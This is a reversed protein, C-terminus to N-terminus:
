EVKVSEELYKDVKRQIEEMSLLEVEVSLEHISVFDIFCRVPVNTCQQAAHGYVSLQTIYSDMNRRDEDTKYDHIEIRDKFFAILDITGRITAQEVPLACEYETEIRVSDKVGELVKAIDAAEPIDEHDKRHAMQEAIQHVKTGYEKGKGGGDGEKYVMIDHVAINLRRRDYDPIEPIPTTRDTRDREEVPYGKAETLPAGNRVYDFFRSQKPGAAVLMYQKARTMAVFLLRREEDYVKVKCQKLVRYRWSDIIGTTGDESVFTEKKCRLGWVEDFVFRNKEGKTSPMIDENVGGVIVIPYELGKSKHMTQVTVAGRGLVADVPYRTCRSIDEEILRIIDPITILSGDYSSAIVNIVAQAVDGLDDDDGIRHFAFISTLLDNPRRRKKYLSDREKVISAPLVEKLSCKRDSAEDFMTKIQSMSYGMHALIASAGRRDNWDNVLRLWGLALKGPVSSMIEVDGQMFVPIKRERAERYFENCAKLNRFLVAFDGFGPKRVTGDENVIMYRGSYMYETVKDVLDTYEKGEESQLFETATNGLYIDAFRGGESDNVTTLRTVSGEEVNVQEKDTGPAYMARFAPDLIQRTSRYNFVMRKTDCDKEDYAMRVRERGLLDVFEQTRSAFHKLNEISANRFGYIGQKWDGVVCLNAATLLMLCNKLQIEDTDQFEDVMMYDVANIDRAYESSYLIVFSFIKVLSFTLRNDRVSRRIYEYYVHRVFYMLTRRDEEAITAMIGDSLTYGGGRQKPTSRFEPPMDGSYVGDDLKDPGGARLTELRSYMEPIDGTLRKEGDRFWEDDAMPIVGFSMLRDILEYLDSVSGAVLAPIDTRDNKYLHGYKESFEAYFSAFYEKNMTENEVLAANRSLTESFGFFENVVEPCDQVIKLCYADFTSVRIKKQAESLMKRGAEDDRMQDELDALRETIKRRMDAASNRTFTVMLIKAPDIRNLIMNAYRETITSTKGTGPGADVAFVGDIQKALDLQNENLGEFLKKKADSM